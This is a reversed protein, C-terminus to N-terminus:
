DNSCVDSGNWPNNSSLILKRPGVKSLDFIAEVQSRDPRTGSVVSKGSSDLVDISSVDVCLYVAVVDSTVSNSMRRSQLRVNDFSTKGTTHWGKDRAMAFGKLDTALAKGTAVSKLRGPDTGGESLIEDSVKLYAAYRKTAAALAEKDSSFIPTPHPTPTPTPRSTPSPACGTLTALLLAAAAVAIARRRPWRVTRM